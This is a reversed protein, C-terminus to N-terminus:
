RFSSESIKSTVKPSLRKNNRKRSFLSPLLNSDPNPRILQGSKDSGFPSQGLDIWYSNDLSEDESFVPSRMLDGVSLNEDEEFITSAGDRESSNDHDMETEFVDRVQNSTFVGSFAPMQSGGNREPLSEKNHEATEDELGVLVDLGDVSDSSYQPYVPLIKVMGSGYIWISNALKVDFIEQDFPM